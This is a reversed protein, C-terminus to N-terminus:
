FKSRTMPTQGHFEGPDCDVMEVDELEGFAQGVGTMRVGRRQKEDGVGAPSSRTASLMLSRSATM